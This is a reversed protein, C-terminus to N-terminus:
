DEHFKNKSPSASEISSLLVQRVTAALQALGVELGKEDESWAYGQESFRMKNNENVPGATETATRGGLAGASAAQGLILKAYNRECFLTSVKQAPSKSTRLPLAIDTPIPRSVCLVLQRRNRVCQLFATEIEILRM